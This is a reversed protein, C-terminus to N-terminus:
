PVEDAVRVMVATDEPVTALPTVNKDETVTDRVHALLKVLTMPPEHPEQVRAVAWVIASPVVICDKSRETDNVAKDPM